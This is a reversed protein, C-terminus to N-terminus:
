IRRQQLIQFGKLCQLYDRFGKSMTLISTLGVDAFNRMSVKQQNVSDQGAKTLSPGLLHYRLSDHGDNTAQSHGETDTTDVATAASAEDVIM